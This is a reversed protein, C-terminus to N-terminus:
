AMAGWGGNAPNYDGIDMNSFTISLITTRM